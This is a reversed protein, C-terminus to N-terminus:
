MAKAVFKGDKIKECNEQSMKVWGKGECSNKGSCEHGKGQCDGKGKCANVGHCQGMAQHGGGYHGHDGHSACGAAIMLGTLAASALLTNKATM